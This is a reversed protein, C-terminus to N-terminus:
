EVWYNIVEFEQGTEPHGQLYTFMGFRYQRSAFNEADISGVTGVYSTSSGVSTSTSTNVSRELTFGTVLYGTTMEVDLEGSKELATTDTTSRSFDIAVETAGAGQGVGVTESMLGELADRPDFQRYPNNGSLIPARPDVQWCGPCLSRIDDLQTRRGSLIDDRRARDPYSDLRDAVHDFVSSDIKVATATTHANYYGAEAMRIIPTRPLGFQQVEREAGIDDMNVRTSAIVEYDYFDYPISAFVVSDEMPGTEFSVSRTVEYSESRAEALAESFSGKIALGFVKTSADVVFGAGAQYEAEFGITIGAKFTVEREAETGSVRATGWSTTCADTNQGINLQCPPAALAALVLPETLVFRHGVFELTQVDGENRGDADFALLIPNLRIGPIVGRDPDTTNVNM